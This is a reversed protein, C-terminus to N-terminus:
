ILNDGIEVGASEVNRVRITLAISNALHLVPTCIGDDRKWRGEGLRDLCPGRTLRGDRLLVHSNANKRVLAVNVDGVRDDRRDVVRHHLSRLALAM